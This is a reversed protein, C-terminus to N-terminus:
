ETAEQVYQRIRRRVDPTVEGFRIGLGYKGKAKKEFARVVEADLSVPEPEGPLEFQVVVSAGRSVYEKVELLMGTESLDESHAQIKRKVGAGSLSIEISLSTRMFVRHPIQLIGVVQDLLERGSVPKALFGNAGAELCRVRVEEDGFSTVILIPIHQTRPDQKLTRCVEDGRKGPMEYDLLIIHPREERALEIAQLGDEATLIQCGTRQFFTREFELFLKVDDVLLVKILSM